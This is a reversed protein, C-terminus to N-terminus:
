IVGRVSSVQDNQEQCSFLQFISHKVRFKLLNLHIKEELQKQLKEEGVSPSFCFTTGRLPTFGLSETHVSMVPVSFGM